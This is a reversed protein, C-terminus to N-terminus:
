EHTSDERNHANTNTATNDATAAERTSEGLYERIREIHAARREPSCPRPTPTTPDKALEAVPEEPLEAGDLRRAVAFDYAARLMREADRQPSRAFLFLDLGDLVLRTFRLRRLTIDARVQEFTPIGLCRARFMPASPPWDEGSKRCADLGTDIQERTM